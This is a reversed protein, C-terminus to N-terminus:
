WDWIDMSLQDTGNKKREKRVKAITKRAIRMQINQEKKKQKEYKKLYDKYQGGINIVELKVPQIGGILEVKVGNFNELSIGEKIKKKYFYIVSSRDCGLKSAIVSFSQPPNEALMSLARNAVSPINFLKIFSKKKKKM